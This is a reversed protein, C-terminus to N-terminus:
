IEMVERILCTSYHPDRALFNLQDFFIIHKANSSHEVISSKKTINDGM